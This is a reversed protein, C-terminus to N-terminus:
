LEARWAKVTDLNPTARPKKRRKAPKSQLSEPPPPEPDPTPPRARAVAAAEEARWDPPPIAPPLLPEVREPAGIVPPPQPGHDFVDVGAELDRTLMEVLAPSAQLPM